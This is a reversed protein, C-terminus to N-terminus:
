NQAIIQIEMAKCILLKKILSFNMLIEIAQPLAIKELYKKGNNDFNNKIFSAYTKVDM